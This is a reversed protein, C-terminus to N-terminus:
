RNITPSACINLLLKWLFAEIQRLKIELDVCDYLIDELSINAPDNKGPFHKIHTNYFTHTSSAM